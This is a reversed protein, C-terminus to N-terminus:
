YVRLPLPVSAPGAVLGWLRTPLSNWSANQAASGAVSLSVRYKGPPLNIEQSDPSKRGTANDDALKTRAALKITQGNVTVVAEENTDNGLLLRAQGPMPM